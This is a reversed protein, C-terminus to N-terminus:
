KENGELLVKEIDQYSLKLLGTASDSDGILFNGESDKLKRDKLFVQRYLRPAVGTFPRFLVKRELSQTQNTVQVVIASDKFKSPPIWTTHLQTIANAVGFIEGFVGSVVLVSAIIVKKM